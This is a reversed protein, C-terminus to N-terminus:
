KVDAVFVLEGSWIADRQTRGSFRVQWSGLAFGDAARKSPVLEATESLRLAAILEPGVRRCASLLGYRSKQSTYGVLYKQSPDATSVAEVEYRTRYNHLRALKASQEATAGSFRQPHPAM